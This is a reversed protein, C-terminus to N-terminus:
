VVPVFVVYCLVALYYQNIGYHVGTEHRQFGKIDLVSNLSNSPKHLYRLSNQKSLMTRMKMVRATLCSIFKSVMKMLKM